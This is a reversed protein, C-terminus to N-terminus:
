LSMRGWISILSTLYKLQVEHQAHQRYLERLKLADSSAEEMQANKVKLVKQAEQEHRDRRDRYTKITLDRGDAVAFILEHEAEAQAELARKLDRSRENVRDLKRRIQIRNNEIQTAIQKMRSELRVAEARLEPLSPTAPSVPLLIEPFAPAVGLGPRSEIDRGLAQVIMARISAEDLGPRNAIAAALTRAMEEATRRRDLDDVSSKMIDVSRTALDSANKAATSAKLAAAAAAKAALSDTRALESAIKAARAAAEASTAISKTDDATKEIVKLLRLAEKVDDSLTGSLGGPAADPAPAVIPPADPPPPIIVPAVIPPTVVPPTGPPPPVITPAVVPPEAPLAPASKTAARPTPQGPPTVAPDTAPAIPDQGAILPTMGVLGLALSLMWARGCMLRGIPSAIM